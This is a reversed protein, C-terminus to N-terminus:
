FIGEDDRLYYMTISVPLNERSEDGCLFVCM